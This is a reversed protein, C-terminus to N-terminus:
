NVKIKRGRNKRSIKISLIGSSYSATISSNDIDFPVGFSQSFSYTGDKRSADISIINGGSVRVDIDKKRFGPLMVEITVGNRVENIELGEADFVNEPEEQEEWYYRFDKDDNKRKM